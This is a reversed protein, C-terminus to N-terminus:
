MISNAATFFALLLLPLPGALQTWRKAKRKHEYAVRKFCCYFRMYINAVINANGYGPTRKVFDLRRENKMIGEVSKILRFLEVWALRSLLYSGGNIVHDMVIFVVPIRPNLNSIIEPLLIHKLLTTWSKAVATCCDFFASISAPTIFGFPPVTTKKISINSINLAAFKSELNDLIINYEM